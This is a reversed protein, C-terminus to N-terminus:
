HRLGERAVFGSSPYTRDFLQIARVFVLLTSDSLLSSSEVRYRGRESPPGEPLSLRVILLLPRAENRTHKYISSIDNWPSIATSLPM